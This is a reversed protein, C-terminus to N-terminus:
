QQGSREEAERGSNCAELVSRISSRLSPPRLPVSIWLDSFRSLFESTTASIASETTKSVPAPGMM